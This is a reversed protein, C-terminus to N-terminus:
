KIINKMNPNLSYKPMAPQLKIAAFFYLCNLINIAYSKIIKPITEKIVIKIPKNQLTIKSNKPKSEFIMSIAVGKILLLKGSLNSSGIFYSM